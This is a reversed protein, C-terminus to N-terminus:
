CHPVLRGDALVSGSVALATVLPKLLFMSSHNKM